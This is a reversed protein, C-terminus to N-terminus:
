DLSQKKGAFSTERPPVGVMGPAATGEGSLVGVAHGVKPSGLEMIPYSFHAAQHNMVDVPTEGKFLKQPM